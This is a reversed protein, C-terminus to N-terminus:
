ASVSLAEGTELLTKLGSVIVVIGGGAEEFFKSGEETPSEMTVSLRCSEGAPEIEWVHTSPAEAAVEPSWLAHFTTVLRRPPDWEVITGEAVVRGDSYSMNYPAGARWDDAHIRTGYYYKETLSADTLAQWLREPTTRIYVQYVHRPKAMPETAGELERKLGAMTKM